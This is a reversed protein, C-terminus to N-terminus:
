AAWRIPLEGADLVVRWVAVARRGDTRPRGRTDRRESGDPGLARAVCSVAAADFYAEGLLVRAVEIAQQETVCGPRAPDEQRVVYVCGRRRDPLEVDHEATGLKRRARQLANDVTKTSAGLSDALERYPVGAFRGVVAGREPASLRLELAWLLRRLDERAVAREHTPDHSGTTIAEGFTLDGDADTVCAEFRLATSVPAHKQRQATKLATILERTICLRAFGHFNARGPRWDRWAKWAGIRAAQLLDDRDLGSAFYLGALQRCLPECLAVAADASSPPTPPWRDTM